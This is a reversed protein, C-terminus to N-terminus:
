CNRSGHLIQWNRRSQPPHATPLNRQQQRNRYSNSAPQCEPFVLLNHNLYNSNITQHHTRNKKGYKQNQISLNYRHQTPNRKTRKRGVQLIQISSVANACGARLAFVRLIRLSSSSSLLVYDLLVSPLLELNENGPQAQSHLDQLSQRGENNLLLNWCNLQVPIPMLKWQCIWSEHTRTGLSHRPICIRSARGGKM